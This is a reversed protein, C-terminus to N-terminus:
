FAKRVQMRLVEKLGRSGGVDLREFTDVLDDQSPETLDRRAFFPKVAIDLTCAFLHDVISQLEPGTQSFDPCANVELLSVQFRDDVLLDIGFIEFANPLVQFSSGAGVAAKFVEAVTERVDEEIKAIREEGLKEGEHSGGLIVKDAMGQLTSVSVTPAEEGLVSTQLCTNTLHASLDFEGTREAEDDLSPPSYPSSAFLALFPHHVYVALGGVALVYVRLHFKTGRHNSNPAPDLLLPSSIYEQIVWERLQMADVRTDAGFMAARSMGETQAEEEEEEDEEDDSEPEFERFIDELMERSSFLRIGNGKDALAAKLIWWKEQGGNEAEAFSQEVEYLDDMLLEDLEDAFSCSFHVTKPTARRLPSDPNKSLYLAITHALNSKRILGKRIVYSNLLTREDMTWDFNLADYDCFQLDPKDGDLDDEQSIFTWDPLRQAFASRLSDVVYRQSEPYLVLAKRPKQEASAAM